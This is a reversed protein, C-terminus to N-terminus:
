EYYVVEDKTLQEYINKIFKKTQEPLELLDLVNMHKELYDMVRDYKILKNLIEINVLDKQYPERYLFVYEGTPEKRYVYCDIWTPYEKMPVIIKDDM